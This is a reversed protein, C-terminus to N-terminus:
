RRPYMNEAVQKAMNQRDLLGSLDCCVEELLLETCLESHKVEDFYKSTVIGRSFPQWTEACDMYPPDCHNGSKATEEAPWVEDARSAVVHLDSDIVLPSAGALSDGILMDAKQSSAISKLLGDGPGDSLKILRETRKVDEATAFNAVFWRMWGISDLAWIEEFAPPRYRIRPGARGAVYLKLPKHGREIMELALAYSATAGVSFGLLAFPGFKDTLGLLEDAALKALAQADEQLAVHRNAGHGPLTVLLPEILPFHEATYQNWNAFGVADHGAGFFCVLRCRASRGHEYKALWKSALLPPLVGYASWDKADAVYNQVGVKEMLARGQLTTSVWGHTPGVGSLLEYHLREGHLTLEQSPSKSDALRKLAPRVEIAPVM